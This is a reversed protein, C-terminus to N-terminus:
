TFLPPRQEISLLKKKLPLGAAYGTL